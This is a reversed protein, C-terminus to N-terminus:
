NKVLVIANPLSRGPGLIYGGNGYLASSGGGDLNLANQAGLARIVYAADIVTANPILALYINEGGFGIVGRTGKVDKQYSTLISTKTVIEGNKVLSPYNSIAASVGGGDYDSSKNYFRPQNGSFTIMGTDFWERADKNLWKGANSDYFAYDFSNIKGSCNSYDPPCFYSGNMGFTAGNENVYEALSKTPCNDKCDSKAASVTKVRYESFPVKILYAGFSGRETNVTTYAYGGGVPAPPPLTALYEDYKTDLEANTNELETILQEYSKEILLKGWATTEKEIDASEIEVDENREAKKEFDEVLEYIKSITENTPDESQEIQDKLLELEFNLKHRQSIALHENFLEEAFNEEFNSQNKSVENLQASVTSLDSNLTEISISLLVITIVFTIIIGLVLALKPDKDKDIIKIRNM